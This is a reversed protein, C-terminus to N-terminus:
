EPAGAHDRLFADLLARNRANIQNLFVAIEYHDLHKSLAQCRVVVGSAEIAPSDPLDLRMTLLTMEAVRRDLFFCVGAESVDRLRGEHSGDELQLTIPVDVALRPHRRRERGSPSSRVNEFPTQPM